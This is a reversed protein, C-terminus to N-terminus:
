KDCITYDIMTSTEFESSKAYVQELYSPKVIMTDTRHKHKM